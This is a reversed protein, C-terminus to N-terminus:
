RDRSQLRTLLFPTTTPQPSGAAPEVTVAIAGISSLDITRKLLHLATGAAESQFLGAPIPQGAIPLLWMQYTTGEPTPPLNSALLLVGRSPNAFVKAKPPQPATGGSVGLITDPANVFALVEELRGARLNLRAIESRAAAVQARERSITSNLSLVSLLLAFASAAALAWLWTRARASQGSASLIRTRLRAPPDAPPPLLGLSTVVGAASSAGQPDAAIRERVESREPEELVGMLFLEYSERAEEVTM